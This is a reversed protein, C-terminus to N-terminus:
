RSLLLAAWGGSERRDTERLGHPAFAAAVEDAEHALLGSAVLARPARELRGALELLLPRLLNALVLPAAPVTDRRLDWRHAGVTVGNAAANHLTAAVSEAEHDYGDVPAWGLRAAAIALVGSGCGLDAVAGAPLPLEQLLELCLRTTPHAGTGFARGPDVVVELGEQREHWPARLALAGIRVPRHFERWRDPWDDAVQSMAVEVLAGGVAADVDGLDPIEGEAGYIAYEVVGPSVDVEEVGGPALVLLEALALEARDRAVRVALRIM